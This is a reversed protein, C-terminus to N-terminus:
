ANVESTGFRSVASSFEIAAARLTNAAAQQDSAVRTQMRMLENNQREQQRAIGDILTESRQTLMQEVREAQSAYFDAQKETPDQISNFQLNILENLRSGLRSLESADSAQGIGALGQQFEGARAQRLEQQSMVSERISRATNGFMQQAQESVGMLASALQVAANQNSSLAQNMEQAALASGDFNRRLTEILSIQDRYADMLSSPGDLSARLKDIPNRSILRDISIMAESFQLMQDSTGKFEGILRKMSGSLQESGYVVQKFIQQIAGAEDGAAFNSGGVRIGSRGSVIDLAANSGGILSAVQEAFGALGGVQDVRGQDFTKGVGGISSAGTGLNIQARGSNEGNNDGGFLSEVGGGLFSGIAAGVLPIPILGQGIFAGAANGIGSTEGFVANSAFGGAIGGAIGGLAGGVTMNNATDFMRGSASVLSESGTARGLQFLGQGAANYIGSGFNQVGGGLASLIGGGAGGGGSAMAGSSGGGLGMSVMVPNRVAAYIMEGLTDTFLNKLGDFSVKGNRLIDKFFNAFGDDLRELGREYAATLDDSKATTAQVASGTEQVANQVKHFAAPLETSIKEATVVIENFQLGGMLRASDLYTANLATMRENAERVVRNNRAFAMEMETAPAVLAEGIRDLEDRIVGLDRGKEIIWALAKGATAYPNFPRLEAYLEKVASAIKGIGIAAKITMGGLSLIGNTFTAFGEKLEPKNIIENLENLAGTTGNIGGGSTDGELLDGFSNQLAKLAGGMTDRAAEASGGFQKELEALIVTQAGAVDGTKAMSKILDTQADSFQIGTRSLAGLNAVPDNLAKGLQVTSSKLDQGMAQSLDLITKTTQDFNVGQINTFTALMAQMEIIAEDGFTTIQQLSAAYNQMEQSTRGAAGGTSLIASELQSIAAEQRATARIVLAGAAGIAAGIAASAKAVTKGLKKWDTDMKKVRSGIKGASGDVTQEARKMERRLQETTADIRVLLREAAESM